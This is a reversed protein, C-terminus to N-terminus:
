AAAAAIALLMQLKAMAKAVMMRTRHCAHQALRVASLLFQTARSLNLQSM